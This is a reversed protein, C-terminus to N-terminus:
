LDVEGTYFNPVMEEFVEGDIEYDQRTEGRLIPAIAEFEVYPMRDLALDRFISIYNELFGVHSFGNFSQSNSHLWEGTVSGLLEGEDEFFRLAECCQMVTDCKILTGSKVLGILEDATEPM